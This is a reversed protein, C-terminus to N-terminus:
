QHDEKHKFHSEEGPVDDRIALHSHVVPILSFKIKYTYAYEVKVKRYVTRSIKLIHIHAEGSYLIIKARLLLVKSLM